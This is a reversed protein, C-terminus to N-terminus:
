LKLPIKLLGKRVKGYVYDSFSTTVGPKGKFLITDDSLDKITIYNRNIDFICYYQRPYTYDFCFNLWYKEPPNKYCEVVYTITSGHPFIIGINYTNIDLRDKISEICLKFYNYARDGEIDSFVKM